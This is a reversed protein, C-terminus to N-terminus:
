SVIDVYCMDTKFEVHHLANYVPPSSISARCLTLRLQKQLVIYVYCQM